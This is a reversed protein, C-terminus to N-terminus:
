LGSFEKFIKARDLAVPKNETIYIKNDVFYYYINISQLKPRKLKDTIIPWLELLSGKNENIFRNLGDELEPSWKKTKSFGHGTMDGIKVDGNKWVNISKVKRNKMEDKVLDILEKCFVGIKQQHYLELEMYKQKVMIDKHKFYRYKSTILEIIIMYLLIHIPKKYLQYNSM